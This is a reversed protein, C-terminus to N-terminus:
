PASSIALGYLSVAGFDHYEKVFQGTPYKFFGIRNATPHHMGMGFAAIMYGDHFALQDDGFDRPPSGQLGFQGIVGAHGKAVKLEYIQPIGLLIDGAHWEMTGSCATEGEEVTAFASQKPRLEELANGVKPDVEDVFLNSRDDYAVSSAQYYHVPFVNPTKSNKPFVAVEPASFNSVALNGTKPDVSCTSLAAGPYTFTAIPSTGGHAYELVSDGDTVYVDGNGDACLGGVASFGSLTGVLKGSGYSLVFVENLKQDSAYMLMGSKAGASIWSPRQSAATASRIQMTMSPPLAATSPTGSCGALIAFGIFAGFKWASSVSTRMGNEEPVRALRM